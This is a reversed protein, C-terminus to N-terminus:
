FDYAAGIGVSRPREYVEDTGFAGVRIVQAVKANTINRTWFSFRWTQQANTWSIEDSATVYPKQAFLNLFDYYVTGSYYINGAFMLRGGAFEHGVDFGLNASWRPARIMQKGSADATQVSNGGQPLPIFIQANPFKTYEAHTYAVSGNLNVDRNIAATVELEGGYIHSNAANQLIYNVGSVDRSNVQLNNYNYYYAAVNTRLWRAPDAKLGIETSKLTEPDTAVPRTGVANFVGSKFGTGYSAYINANAAFNYRVVGRYTWKDTSKKATPFLTVENVRQRFERDETTYRAGLTIFVPDMVQYTGEAFAAYSTTKLVDPDIVTTKVPGRPGPSTQQFITEFGSLNFFYAGAIWEFPAADKTLLRVEQSITQAGSNATNQGLLVNTSDSDSFQFNRTHLYGTSTELSIRGLDFATRLAINYRKYRLAPAGNTSIQYPRTPLIVGPVSRGATNNDVPQNTNTDGDLNAYDGSLILRMGDAPQFLVKSRLDALRENGATGGSVLDEVYGDNRRFLGAFDVATTNSLGGTLYTRADYDNANGVIRGYRVAVRGSPQFSPDPTIVNILGGTANRGFVTGQPGRLVEVRDVEVLDLATSFPDAQYIGDIYIAVNSEDGTSLGTSGVGRIVPQIVGASRVSNFAPVVQNLSRLEIINAHSLTGASVASVAVPVDQLRAERRTATVVVEGLGGDDADSSPGASETSPGASDSEKSGSEAFAIPGTSSSLALLALAISKNM